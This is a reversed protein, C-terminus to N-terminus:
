LKNREIHGNGEVRFVGEMRQIHGHISIDRSSGILGRRIRRWVVRAPVVRVIGHSLDNIQANGVVLVGSKHDVNLHQTEGRVARRLSKTIKDSM